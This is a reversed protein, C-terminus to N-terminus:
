RQLKWLKAFTGKKDLLQAPTGEEIIKGKDLVIIRDMNKLTSLRHAIAIVTKDQMLKNLAYIVDNETNNDLASTAEDLILIPSNKLIARAIAVRQRQGGSLKVGREGTITNYGYTTESVFKDSQALKSAVIIEDMTASTKGYAINRKISRHFLVNDQSVLSIAKKLSGITVDKINKGDITIKGNCVDYERQLLSILTSKGGGSKGVIGVKEGAKITLNFKEFINKNKKYAFTINNFEIQGEKVNLKKAKEKQTVTYPEQLIKISDALKGLNNRFLSIESFLRTFARIIDNLLMLLAIVTETNIQKTHWLYIGVLVCSINFMFLFAQQGARILKEILYTKNKFVSILELKKDIKKKESKEQGFMKILLINSLADATAGSYQSNKEETRKNLLSSKKSVVFSLLASSIGFIIVIFLFLINQMGIYLLPILILWLCSLARSVALSQGWVNNGLATIRQAIVGAKQKKLYFSSHKAIYNLAYIESRWAVGQRAKVLTTERIYRFVHTLCFAMLICIIYFMAKIWEFDDISTSSLYGILKASLITALIKAFSLMFSMILEVIYFIKYGDSADWFFRLPSTANASKLEKYNVNLM